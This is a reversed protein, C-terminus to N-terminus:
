YIIELEIIADSITHFRIEHDESDITYGVTWYGDVPRGDSGSGFWMKKRDDSIYGSVINQYQNTVYGSTSFGLLRARTIEKDFVLCPDTVKWNYSQDLKATSKWETSGCGFYVYWVDSPHKYADITFEGTKIWNAKYNKDGTSGKAITVEKQPITGNSGTWGTFYYEERTPTPLTIDESEITYKTVTEAEGGDLDYTITYEKLTWKQSLTYDKTTSEIEGEVKKGNEDVWSFEYEDKELPNPVKFQEGYGIVEKVENGSADTYTVILKDKLAIKSTFKLSLSSGAAKVVVPTILVMAIFLVFLKKNKSKGSVTLIILALISAFLIIMYKVISDETKPNLSITETVTKGTEDEMTVTIALDMDQIRNAVDDVGKLYKVTVYLEASSNAKLETDSYGSYEYSIYDNENNDAITKIKYDQSGNNKITIKYKVYDGIKHFIVDSNITTKEFNTKEIEITESKETVEVNTISFIDEDAYVNEFVSLLLIVIFMIIAISITKLNEKM